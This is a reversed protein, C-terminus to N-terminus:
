TDADKHSEALPYQQTPFHKHSSGVDTGDPNGHGGAKLALVKLQRSHSSIPRVRLVFVNPAHHTRKGGEVEVAEKPVNIFDEIVPVLSDHTGIMATLNVPYHGEEV